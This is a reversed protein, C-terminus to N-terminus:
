LLNPPVEARISEFQKFLQDAKECTQPTANDIAIISGHSTGRILKQILQHDTWSMLLFGYFQHTDTWDQTIQDNPYPVKLFRIASITESLQQEDLKYRGAALYETSPQLSHVTLTNDPFFAIESSGCRWAGVMTPAAQKGCAVFGVMVLMLICVPKLNDSM